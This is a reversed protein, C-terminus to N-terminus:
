VTVEKTPTLWECPVNVQAYDRVPRREDVVANKRLRCWFIGSTAILRNVQLLPM